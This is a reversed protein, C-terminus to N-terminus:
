GIFNYFDNLAKRNLGKNFRECSPESILNCSYCTGVNGNAEEDICIPDNPCDQARIFAFEILKEIKRTEDEPVNNLRDFLSCLGGFSGNSGSATYILIGAYNVQEVEHIEESGFYLREKISNVTYGCEFELEKMICHSLSHMMTYINGVTRNEADANMFTNLAITDLEIFIAEGFMEVGPYYKIAVADDFIKKSKKANPTLRTYGTQVHTVKIKKIRNLNKIGLKNLEIRDFSLHPDNYPSDTTSLFDFESKKYDQEIIENPNNLNKLHETIHELATNTLQFQNTILNHIQVANDIGATLLMQISNLELVPISYKPIFVSSIAQVFCVNNSQRIVMKYQTGDQTIFTKAPLSVLSKTILIGDINATVKKTELHEASGGATFSLTLTNNAPKNPNFLIEDANNTLFDGWPIDAIEGSEAALLFSFQEMKGHQPCRPYQPNSRVILQSAHKLNNNTCQPCYFWESFFSASIVNAVSAIGGGLPSKNEPLKFLGVLYKLDFLSILRALLRGDEIFDPNDNLYNLNLMRRYKSQLSDFYPWQNFPEIMLSGNNFTQIITGIAGYSNVMKGQGQKEYRSAMRNSNKPKINKTLKAM